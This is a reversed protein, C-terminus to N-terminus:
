RRTGAPSRCCRSSGSRERAGLGSSGLSRLDPPCRYSAGWGARGARGVAKRPPTRGTRGTVTKHHASGADRPAGPTLSEFHVGSCRSPRTREHDRARCLVRGAARSRPRSTGCSQSLRGFECQQKCSRRIADAWSISSSSALVRRHANARVACRPEPLRPRSGAPGDGGVAQPLRRRRCCRAALAVRQLGSYRIMSRSAAAPRYPGSAFGALWRRVSRKPPEALPPNHAGILDGRALTGSCGSARASEYPPRIFAPLYHDQVEVVELDM